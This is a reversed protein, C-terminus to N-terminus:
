FLAPLKSPLFVKRTNRVKFPHKAGNSIPVATPVKKVPEGNMTLLFATASIPEGTMLRQTPSHPPSSATALGNLTSNPRM